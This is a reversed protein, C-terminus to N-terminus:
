ARKGRGAAEDRTARNVYAAVVRRLTEDMKEATGDPLAMSRSVLNALFLSAAKTIVVLQGTSDLRKLGEHAEIGVMIATAVEYSMREQVLKEAHSDSM